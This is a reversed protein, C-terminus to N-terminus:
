SALAVGHATQRILGADILQQWAMGVSGSIAGVDSECDEALVDCVQEQTMGPHTGLVELIAASEDNLVHTAGSAPSFSAWAQGIPEVRVGAIREYM